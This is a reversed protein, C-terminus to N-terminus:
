FIPDNIPNKLIREGVDMGHQRLQSIEVYDPQSLVWRSRRRYGQEELYETYMESNSFLHLSNEYYCM